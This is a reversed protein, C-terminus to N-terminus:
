GAATAGGRYVYMMPKPGPLYRQEMDALRFGGDRLMAPVDRNLHCGGALPKWLPTLRQQWRRVSADPASGHECFLLEGGPRLVRRMEKLASVADPITCLTFTSVVTDFSADDAQITEAGLALTQVPIGIGAARKRALTNMGESPDLAHISDVRSADYYRFNLGSGAGIELVKGRARPILAARQEMVPGIGCVCDILHPLVFRDYLNM